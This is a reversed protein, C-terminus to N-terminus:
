ERLPSLLDAPCPALHTISADYDLDCVKSREFASAPEFSKASFVIAQGKTLNAAANYIESGKRINSFFGGGDTLTVPGVEIKLLLEDGGQNTSISTIKGVVNEAFVTDLLANNQNFVESKKIDNPAADYRTCNDKVSAIWSLQREPASWIEKASLTPRHSSTRDPDAVQGQHTSENSIYRSAFGILVLPTLVISWVRGRTTKATTIVLIMGLVAVVVASGPFWISTIGAGLIFLVFIGAAENPPTPPATATM